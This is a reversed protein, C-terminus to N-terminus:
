HAEPLPDHLAQVNFAEQCDLPVVGVRITGSGQFVPIDGQMAVQGMTLEESRVFISPDVDDWITVDVKILDGDIAFSRDVHPADPLWDTHITVVADVNLGDECTIWYFRGIAEDESCRAETTLTLSWDGLLAVIEPDACTSARADPVADPSADPQALADPLPAEASSCAALLIGVLLLGRM